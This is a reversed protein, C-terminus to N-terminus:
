LTGKTSPIDRRESDLATAQALAIGSAKFIAESIHHDDRGTFTFHATIGGNICFAYFFHEFLRVPINGATAGSFKGDWVLYGRGSCDVSVQALAEDMPVSASSFRKIGHGEGIAEKLAKGMVIGVDEMTHHVDIELDGKASVALDIGGHRCFARLMHDLFPIGTDISCRGTGDLDICVHVDTESTKRVIDGRRMQM